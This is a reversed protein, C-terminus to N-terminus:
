AAARKATAPMRKLGLAAAVADVDDSLHWVQGRLDGSIRGEAIANRLKWPSNFQFPIEYGKALAAPIFMTLRM